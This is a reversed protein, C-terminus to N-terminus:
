GGAYFIHHGIRALRRMTKAWRPKVYDAHYNTASGMMAIAPDGSIARQAITKAHSWAGPQNVDDPLGDCAFSFQCSNRTGSGQYVVGCISKPYDPSKVRNLIVKAVALQGLDSESRSEFYVARALCNEEALRVRRQAVVKQKVAKDLKFTKQVDPEVPVVAMRKVAAPPDDPHKLDISAPIIKVEKEVKALKVPKPKPVPIPVPVPEVLNEIALDGKGDILVTQSRLTKVNLLAFTEGEPLLSGKTALASTPMVLPVSDEITANHADANRGIYHGAFAFATVLMVGAFAMPVLDRLQSKPQVPNELYNLDEFRRRRQLCKYRELIGFGAWTHTKRIWIIVTDFAGKAYTLWASL